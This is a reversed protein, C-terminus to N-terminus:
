DWFMPMRRLNLWQSGVEHPFKIVYLVWGLRKAISKRCPLDRFGLMQFDHRLRQWVICCDVDSRVYTRHCKDPSTQRQVAKAGTLNELNPQTTLFRAPIDRFGGTLLAM